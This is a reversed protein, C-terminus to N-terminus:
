GNIEEKSLLRMRNEVPVHLNMQEDPIPGWAAVEGGPNLGLVTATTVASMTGFAQIYAGGLFRDEDAFSLYWWAFLGADMEETLLEDTRNRFEQENMTPHSWAESM